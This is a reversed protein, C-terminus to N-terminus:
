AEFKQNDASALTVYCFDNNRMKRQAKGAINYFNEIKFQTKTSM